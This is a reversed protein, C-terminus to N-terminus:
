ARQVYQPLTKRNVKKFTEKFQTPKLDETDLPPLLSHVNRTNRTPNSWGLITKPYGGLGKLPPAQPSAMQPRSQNQPHGDFRTFDSDFFCIGTGHEIALAALQADYQDFLELTGAIDTVGVKLGVGVMRQRFCVPKEKQILGARAFEDVVEGLGIHHERRLREAAAAVEPDLRVTRM